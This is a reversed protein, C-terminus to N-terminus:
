QHSKKPFTDLALPAGSALGWAKRDSEVTLGHVSAQVVPRSGDEALVRRALRPALVPVPQLRCHWDVGAPAAPFGLRQLLRGTQVDCALISLCGEPDAAPPFTVQVEATLFLWRLQWHMTQVERCVVILCNQTRLIQRCGRHSPLARKWLLRGDTLERAQLSNNQVLYIARDDLTGGELTTPQTGLYVPKAWRRSGNELDLCELFYGYNRAVLLLLVDRNGLIQPPEGTLSAPHEVSYSWLERGTSADLVVLHEPDTLLSALPAAHAGRHALPAADAGRYALPAANARRYRQLSNARPTTDAGRALQGARRLTELRRGTRSDLVLWPGMGTQIVLIETGAYYPARFRGSPSPLQFRGAPAWSTWLVRGSFVDLAFLRREECLFFLRPGALEFGTLHPRHCEAGLSSSWLRSGDVRSFGTVSEAGAALVIDACCGIWTAAEPLAAQWRMKGTVRDRCSITCNGISFLYDSGLSCSPSGAVPVFREAAAPDDRQPPAQWVRTLPLSLEPRSSRLRTQYEGRQLKLSVFARVSREKDIAPVIRDGEEAALQQWIAQAAPWCSQREYARALGALARPREAEDRHWRLYCRYARAAAGFKGEQENRSALELLAQGTIVANPFVHGLRDLVEKRMAGHAAALLSQARREIAAYITPGHAQILAQIQEAAISAAAQPNDNADSISGGALGADELIAQWIAVAREFQGAKTWLEAERGLAKLRADLPFRGDAAQDLFRAAQEWNKAREAMEAADMIIEQRRKRVLRRLTTDDLREEPDTQAELRNLTALASAFLGADAEALALRYQERASAGPQAAEQKRRELFHGEPLYLSLEREGAVALCGNGVALNGTIGEDFFAPEGTEQDLAYVGQRLDSRIPWFVWDGALVGRGFTKLESGDAPQMWDRLDNGTLADIARICPMPTTATFILRGKAVGLLQLVQLPGREWLTRGTEPDLCLLHDSDLPAVYLRCGAYLCPSLDRPPAKGFVTPHVQRSYRIGWLHRGTLADVAVIAGSHACYYLTYGALTVLHQRWRLRGRERLPDQPSSCVETQWRLKGSDADYCDLTTQIQDGALRSEAIFVCGYGVVPAGEFVPGDAATGKCAVNWREVKAHVDFQLDLCVLYSQISERARDKRLSGLGQAGLRAYIRNGSVSLTYSREVEEPMRQRLRLLGLRQEEAVYDALDYRLIPRGDFLRYGLVRRGDTVFVREGQIVPYYPLSPNRQFPRVNPVFSERHNGAAQGRDEEDLRVTWQPKDFPRLQAWRGPPKPVIRNHTPCGGFTPWDQARAPAHLEEPQAALKRLIEVYLGEQGALWGKAKPYLARFANLEEQLGTREGRFLRALIQKACVRGVDVQPDPFLLTSARLASRPAGEQVGREASRAGRERAGRESAPLALLRWWREAEDFNGSEFALDGLLDLARDTYRSCFAEDVLRRLLVPDCAAAGQEFLKKAQSDVLNRYLQLAAPPLASLRLHCVRRAQLAHRPDLAVLDDGADSLIRNYEDVAEAWQEHAALEDAAALRRATRQSEGALGIRSLDEGAVEAPGAFAFGAAFALLVCRCCRTM